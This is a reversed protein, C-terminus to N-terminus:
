SFRQLYNIIIYTVTTDVRPFFWSFPHCDVLSSSMLNPLCTCCSLEYMAITWAVRNNSCRPPQSFESFLMFISNLTHNWLQVHAKSFLLESLKGFYIWTCKKAFYPYACATIIASRYTPSYHAILQLHCSWSM